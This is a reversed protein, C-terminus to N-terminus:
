PVLRPTLHELLYYTIWLDEFPDGLMELDDAPGRETDRCPFDRIVDLSHRRLGGLCDPLDVLHRGIAEWRHLRREFVLILQKVADVATELCEDFVAHFCPSM